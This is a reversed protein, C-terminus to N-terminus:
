IAGAADEQDRQQVATDASANEMLEKKIERLMEICGLIWSMNQSGSVTVRELTNEIVQLKELAKM